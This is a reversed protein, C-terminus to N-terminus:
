DNHRPQSRRGYDCRPTINIRVSRFSVSGYSKEYLVPKRGDTLTLSKIQNPLSPPALPGAPAHAFVIRPKDALTRPWAAWHRPRNADLYARAHELSAERDPPVREFSVELGPFEPPTKPCRDGSGTALVRLGVERFLVPEEGLKQMDMRFGPRDLVGCEAVVVVQMPLRVNPIRDVFVCSLAVLAFAAATVFRRYHIPPWLASVAIATAGATILLLALGWFPITDSGPM